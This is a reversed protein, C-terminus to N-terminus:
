EAQADTIDDVFLDTNAAANAMRPKRGRKSKNKLDGVYEKVKKRFTMKQETPILPKDVVIILGNDTEIAKKGFLQKLHETSYRIGSLGKLNKFIHYKLVDRADIGKDKLLAIQAELGTLDKPVLVVFRNHHKTSKLMRDLHYQRLLNFFEPYKQEIVHAVTNTSEAQMPVADTPYMPKMTRSDAAILGAAPLLLFILKKM